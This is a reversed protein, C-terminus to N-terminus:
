KRPLAGHCIAWETQRYETARDKHTDRKRERPPETTAAKTLFVKLNQPPFLTGARFMATRNERPGNPNQQSALRCIKRGLLHRNWPRVSEPSYTDGEGKRSNTALKTAIREHRVGAPPVAKQYERAVTDAM